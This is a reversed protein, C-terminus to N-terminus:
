VMPPVIVPYRTLLERISALLEPPAFPKPMYRQHPKLMDKRLAVDESYGSMFITPTSGFTDEIREALQPGSLGPMVVDTILLEFPRGRKVMELAADSGLSSSVQYGARSLLQELLKRVLPEDEVLLIREGRGGSPAIVAEVAVEGIGEVRPLLVHFTTGCGLESEVEILGGVQEVLGYVSSLGLGVGKGVEKTTFFPEFIRSKTAEDMGIGTDAVRIEIFDGKRLSESPAKAAPAVSIKVAGGDPMADRANIVLNMIIQKLAASDAIVHGTTFDVECTLEIREGLLPRLLMETEALERRLDLKELRIPHQRSMALLERTLSAAHDAASRIQEVWGRIPDGAPVRSLALAAYGHIAMLINNFNHAMGGAFRGVLEMKQIQRLQAELQGQREMQARLRCTLAKLDALTSEHTQLLVLLDGRPDHPPFDHVELGHEAMDTLRTIWPGGVFLVHSARAQNPIPIFQGRLKFQPRQRLSLLFVSEDHQTITCFDAVGTPRDIELQESFKAGVCLFPAIKAWRPGALVIHGDADIAFHFPFLKGILEAWEHGFLEADSM